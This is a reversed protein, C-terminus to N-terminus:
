PQAASCRGLGPMRRLRRWVAAPVHPHTRRPDDAHRLTPARAAEFGLQTLRRYNALCDEITPIGLVPQIDEFCATLLSSLVCGTIHDPHHTRLRERVAPPLAEERARPLHRLLAIPQPSGLVGGETFLIDGATQLRRRASPVSFCHPSSDDVIITGPRLRNVDLIDPVNTAGVILTSGYFDSPVAPRSELLRLRGRFALHDLLDRAGATDLRGYVDCLILEEPHPLCRLMLRLTTSGISGLGLFGVRERRLNRSALRAVKAIALVVASVTTAHGTTVPPLGKRAPRIARGYDTASPVLGTLSVVRAGLRSALELAELTLSTLGARDEYLESGFRPLILIAIRGLSTEYVAAFNPLGDYWEEIWEKRYLHPQGLYDDMLYGIAAADVPALKGVAALSLLSRREVTLYPSPM